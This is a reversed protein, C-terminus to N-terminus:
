ADCSCSRVAAARVRELRVYAAMIHVSRRDGIRDSKSEAGRINEGDVRAHIYVADARGAPVGGLVAANQARTYLRNRGALRGAAYVASFVAGETCFDILGLLFGPRNTHKFYM